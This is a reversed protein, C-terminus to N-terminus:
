MLSIDESKIILEVPLKYIRSLYESLLGEENKVKPTFEDYEVIVGEYSVFSEKSYTYLDPMLYRILDYGSEQEETLKIDPLEIGNSIWHRFVNEIDGFDISDYCFAAPTLDLDIEPKDKCSIRWGSASGGGCTECDFYDNIFTVTVILKEM